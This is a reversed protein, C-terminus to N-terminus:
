AVQMRDSVSVIEVHTWETPFLRSRFAVDSKAYHEPRIGPQKRMVKLSRALSEAQGYVSLAIWPYTLRTLHM